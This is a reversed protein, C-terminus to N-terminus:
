AGDGRGVEACHDHIGLPLLGLQRSYLRKCLDILHCPDAYHLDARMRERESYSTPLNFAFGLRGARDMQALTAKLYATWEAERHDLRVNFIRSAVAHDAPESPRDGVAFDATPDTRHLDRAAQIM